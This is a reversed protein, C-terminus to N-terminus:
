VGQVIGRRMQNNQYNTVSKGVKSTDMYVDFNKDDIARSLMNAMAYVANVVDINGNSVAAEMQEINMVGTRNGLNAVVEPGAEGALILSGVNPVSGGSALKTGAISTKGRFDESTNYTTVTPMQLPNNYLAKQLQEWVYALAGPLNGTSLVTKLYIPDYSSAMNQAYRRIEPVNSANKLSTNYKVPTQENAATQATKRVTSVNSPDKLSTKYAIAPLDKATIQALNRVKNVNSLEKVEAKFELRPTKEFKLKTKEYVTSVNEPGAVKSRFPVPTKKTTKDTTDEYVTNINKPAEVKSPIPVYIGEAEMKKAILDNAVDKAGSVVSGAWSNDYIRKAVGAVGSPYSPETYEGAEKAIEDRAWAAEEEMEGTQYPAPEIQIPIQASLIAEERGTNPFLLDWVDDPAAMVAEYILRNWLGKLVGEILKVIADVINGVFELLKKAADIPDFNVIADIVGNVLTNGIQEWDQKTIWTSFGKLVGTILDSLSKGLGAWNLNTLFGLAVDFLGTIANTLTFAIDPTNIDMLGNVFGAIKNGIETFNTESIFGKVLKVANNIKDAIGKGFAESDFGSILGNLKGALSSGLEEWKGSDIFSKLYGFVGSEPDWEEFVYDLGSGGGTEGSLRNIEDFGFLDKLKGAASSADSVTKKLAASFQTQGTLAAFFAGISNALAAITDMLKELAPTVYNVLPAVMAAFANKLYNLSSALRQVNTHFPTGLNKSYDNLNTFGEKILALIKSVIQRIIRFRFARGFQSKLRSFKESLKGIGRAPLSGISKVLGKIGSTIKHFGKSPLAKLSAGIKEIKSAIPATLAHALGQVAEKTKVFAKEGPTIPRDSVLGKSSLANLRKFSEELKKIEANANLYGKRLWDALSGPEEGTLMQSRMMAERFTERPAFDKSSRKAKEYGKYIDEIKKAAQPGTIKELKKYEAIMQEYEKQAYDNRGNKEWYDNVAKANSKSLSEEKAKEVKATEKEAKKIEKEKKDRREKIAKDQEKSIQAQVKKYVELQDRLARITDAEDANKVQRLNTGALKQQEETLKLADRYQELLRPHGKPIKIDQFWRKNGSNKASSLMAAFGGSAAKGAKEVEKTVQAEDLKIKAELELVEKEEAM